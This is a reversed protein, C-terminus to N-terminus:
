GGDSTPARGGDVGFTASDPPASTVPPMVALRQWGGIALKVAATGHFREAKNDPPGNGVNSRYNRRDAWIRARHRKSSDNAINILAM